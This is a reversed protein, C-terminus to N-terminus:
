LYLQIRHIKLFKINTEPTAALSDIDNQNKVKQLFVNITNITNEINLYHRCKRDIKSSCHHFRWSHDHIQRNGGEARDNKAKHIKCSNNLEYTNLIEIDEQHISGRDSHSITAQNRISNRTRFDVKNM